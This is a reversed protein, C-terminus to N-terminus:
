VPVLDSSPAISKGLCYRADISLTHLALHINRAILYVQEEDAKVRQTQRSDGKHNNNNLSRAKTGDFTAAMELDDLSCQLQRLSPELMPVAHVVVDPSHQLTHAILRVELKFRRAYRHVSPVREPTDVSM